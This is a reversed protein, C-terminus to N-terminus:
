TRYLHKQNKNQKTKNVLMEMLDSCLRGLSFQVFRLHEAQCSKAFHTYGHFGVLGSPQLAVGADGFGGMMGTGNM